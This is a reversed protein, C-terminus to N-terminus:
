RFKQEQRMLAALARTLLKHVAATVVRRDDLQHDRVAGLRILIDLLDTNIELPLIMHGRRVRSRWRATRERARRRRDDASLRPVFSLIPARKMAHVVSIVFLRSCGKLSQRALPMRAGSIATKVHAFPVRIANRMESARGFAEGLAVLGAAEHARNEAHQEVLAAPHPM